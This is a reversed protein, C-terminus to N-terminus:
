LESRRSKPVGLIGRVPSPLGFRVARAGRIGSPLGSTRNRYILTERGVACDPRDAVSRRPRREAVSAGAMVAQARVAGAAMRPRETRREPPPVRRSRGWRSKLGCNTRPSTRQAVARTRM